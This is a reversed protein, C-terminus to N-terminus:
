LRNTKMRNEFVNNLKKKKWNFFKMNMDVNNMQAPLVNIRKECDSFFRKMRHEDFLNRRPIQRIVFSMKSTSSREWSNSSQKRTGKFLLSSFLLLFEREDKLQQISKSSLANWAIEISWNLKSSLWRTSSSTTRYGNSLQWGNWESSSIIKGDFKFSRNVSLSVFSSSKIFDSSTKESSTKWQEISRFRSTVRREWKSNEVFSLLSSFMM